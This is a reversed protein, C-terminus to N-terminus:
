KNFYENLIEKEKTMAEFLMSDVADRDAILRDDIYKMQKQEHTDRIDYVRKSFEEPLSDNKEKMDNYIGRLEKELKGLPTELYKAKEIEKHIALM